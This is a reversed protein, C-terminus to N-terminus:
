HVKRRSLSENAVPTRAFHRSTAFGKNVKEYFAKFGECSISWQGRFPNSLDHIMHCVFVVATVNAAGLIVKSARDSDSLAFLFISLLGMLVVFLYMTAPIREHTGALRRSRLTTLEGVLRMLNELAIKDSENLEGGTDISHVSEILATVEPADLDIYDRRSMNPWEKNAVCDAYGALASSTRDSVADKADMDLYLLYDRLDTLANLELNTVDRLEAYNEVLIFIVFGVVITYLAGFLGLFVGLEELPISLDYSTLGEIFKPLSLHSGMFIDPHVALTILAATTFVFAFARTCM